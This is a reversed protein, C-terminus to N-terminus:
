WIKESIKEVPVSNQVSRVNKHLLGTMKKRARGFAYFVYLVM